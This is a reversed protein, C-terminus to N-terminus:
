ARTACANMRRDLLNWIRIGQGPVLLTNSEYGHRAVAAVASRLLAPNEHHAIPLSGAPASGSCFGITGSRDCYATHM